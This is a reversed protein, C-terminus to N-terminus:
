KSKDGTIHDFILQLQNEMRTKEKVEPGKAILQPKTGDIVGTKDDFSGILYLDFQESHGSMQSDPDNINSAFVRIAVADNTLHLPQSYVQAAHDYFSYASYKM